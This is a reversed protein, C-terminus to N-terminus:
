WVVVVRAVVRVRAVIVGRVLVGVLRLARAPAEDAHAAVQALAAAVREDHADHGREVVADAVAAADAVHQARRVAEHTVRARACISVCTCASPYVCLSASACMRM